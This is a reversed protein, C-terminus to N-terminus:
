TTWRLEYHRGPIDLECFLGYHRSPRLFRIGWPAYGIAAVSGVLLRGLRFKIEGSM